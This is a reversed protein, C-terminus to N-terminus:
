KCVWIVNAPDQWFVIKQNIKEAEIKNQYESVTLLQSAKLVFSAPKPIISLM